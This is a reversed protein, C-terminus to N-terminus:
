RLASPHACHCFDNCLSPDPSESPAPCLNLQVPCTIIQTPQPQASFPSGLPNVMCAYYFLFLINWNTGESTPSFITQVWVSAFLIKTPSLPFTTGRSM